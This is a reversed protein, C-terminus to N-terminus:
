DEDFNVASKKAVKGEAKDKKASFVKSTAAFTRRRGQNGEFRFQIKEGLKSGAKTVKTSEADSEKGM